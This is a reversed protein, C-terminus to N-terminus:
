TVGPPTMVHCVATKIDRLDCVSLESGMNTVVIVKDGVMSVVSRVDRTGGEGLKVFTWAEATRNM